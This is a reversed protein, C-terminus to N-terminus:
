SSGVPVRAHCGGKYQQLFAERHKHESLRFTEPLFDLKPVRRKVTACVRDYEQLSNLLGLKNTLLQCNPIHNVIQEGPPVVMLCINL